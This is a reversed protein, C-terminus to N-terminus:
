ANKVYLYVKKLLKKIVPHTADFKWAALYGFLNPSLLYGAEDKFQATKNAMRLLDIAGDKDAKRILESAINKAFAEIEDDSGLYQKTRRLKEDKSKYNYEKQKVFDRKRFQQMHIMEHELADVIRDKINTIGESSFNVTKTKPAFILEIRFPDEGDEDDDPDYSANLNMDGEDVFDSFLVDVEAVGFKEVHQHLKKAINKVSINEQSSLFTIFPELAKEIEGHGAPQTIEYFHM